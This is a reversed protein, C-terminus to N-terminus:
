PLATQVLNHLVYPSTPGPKTQHHVLLSAPTSPLRVLIVPLTDSTLWAGCLGPPLSVGKDEGRQGGGLVSLVRGARSNTDAEFQVTYLGKYIQNPGDKSNTLLIKLDNMIKSPFVVQFLEPELKDLPDTTDLDFIFQSPTILLSGFVIKRKEIIHQVSLKLFDFEIVDEQQEQHDEQEQVYWTSSTYLDRDTDQM